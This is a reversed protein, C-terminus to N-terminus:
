KAAGGAGGGPPPTASAARQGTVPEVSVGDALRDSGEIVVIQGAELGSVIEVIGDATRLGIEVPQLRARGGDVVYTVFGRESAQVAGEPVVLAGEHSETALTVEAFFGPKLEGPNKVWALVEVQRTTPDAMEGVHYIRAPFDNAGLAGVHFSVTEGDRCRLSEAESVKFRLRLRSTDVLTALKDGMKVYQGTEVSRTNIVGAQPPRLEAKRLNQQAIGLAARAVDVAAELRANEGRSRTLEEAAVLQNAALEERRRLDAQARDLEAQAQDLASKARANELRYREPDIRAIVTKPTVRDGQQIRVESVAGEVEATIHVMEDAELSGLAKVQYVVDQSQVPAVRVSIARMGGRAAAPAGQSRGCAVLALLSGATTLVIRFSRRPTM